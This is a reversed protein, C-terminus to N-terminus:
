LLVNLEQRQAAVLLQSIVHLSGSGYLAAHSVIKSLHVPATPGPSPARTGPFLEPVSPLHLWGCIVFGAWGRQRKSGILCCGPALLTWPGELAQFEVQAKCVNETLFLRRSQAWGSTVSEYHDM